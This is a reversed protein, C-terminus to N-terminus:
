TAAPRPSFRWAPASRKAARAGRHGDAALDREAQGCVDRHLRGAHAAGDRDAGPFRRALQAFLAKLAQPGGTSTGIVVIDVAAHPQRRDPPAPEIRAPSAPSEALHMPAAHAAAKVKEILEDAIELLRDTALATPKQVFDVAGADLAALVQEGAGSAISIILIPVPRRAMQARVFAVGDMAPMNLDCTVVDPKLRPSWNSRKPATAPPASWRSSRAARCCRSARGQARLGLRGGGRRARHGDDSKRGERADEQRLRLREGVQELEFQDTIRLCRSPPASASIRRPRCRGPSVDRRRAPDGSESFYIFVNRCLIVDAVARTARDAPDCLNVRSWSVRRSIAPISGGARARRRSTAHACIPRCRASPGSATSAPPACTSRRRAPTAAGRDRGTRALRAPRADDRAHAAGRRHRLSRVVRAVAAHRQAALAPIIVDVLAQLQDLERWFYTEPVSLADIVRQWEDVAATDYKLLYYYDLFSDFGRNAVLPALRDAMQDIRGEEYFVGSRDHVLDRVLSVAGPVLGLSDVDLTM